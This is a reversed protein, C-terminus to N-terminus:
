RLLKLSIMVEDSSSGGEEFAVAYGVSFVSELNSFMVLSFDVQGGVNYFTTRLDDSGVNTVLGGTFLALRSWNTYLGPVGVKRFRVPPLTWELTAKGFDNGGAENLELGPFSYYERYRRVEQYDIWNNGFGGFFFNAFANDRDGWSKGAATRIWLSAHDLPLPFGYDYSGYLRPFFDEDVLSGSAALSWAKGSEHDVAGITRRMDMYDLHGGIVAYEDFPARINQFDPLTDLGGYYGASITYDLTTPREFILYDHFSVVASHGKRSTKTPGFMDYFNTANYKLRVNWPAHSYGLNLHLREDSDLDEDPSWAATLDIAHLGLPDSMNMRVGAAISDKYGELVPYVSGVRMQSFPKYPGDYESIKDLDVRAPSGANWERVMPHTKVVEQGLYRVANIDELVEVPMRVPQFGQSSYRFAIMREDSVPLPRFVGTEVNTLAEMERTQRDFRFVNSVGTHYSTGYLYRGDPSFVFNAPTNNPFEHLMDLKSDGALVAPISLSALQQRGTVDILSCSLTQGDPSIDLDFMDRGYDLTLVVQWEKYPPSLKVLSSLGNHHQVGWLTQDSPNIVLDGTRFNELIQRQRGTALDVENLDRWGRTNDSTYYLKRNKADFALSTVFYLAPAGVKSLPTIAGTDANIAVIQAPKAPRNIAVYILNRESDYFGRSISGLSEATVAAQETVPFERIRELNGKQWEGEWAIWKRWEDDLPSGYVQEFQSAFYRKSGDNRDFWRILKEPGYQLGLWTVFRTGYLYSNQGVQFDITTGESELGVVDYFYADELVMTRFAMEDYGGLVRGVGGAMWTELFVAIGEHYWRPSYWRPSTLYSYFMSIPNESIPSVKGNFMKRFFLDSGSGKDTAVVHVLEHHMLWNMRENAPMTDYVYDFPSIGISIYNWPITSTGGHGYDGFDQMLVTVPETPTYDFLNRHFALSNEFSRALHYSLYRHAEDYSILNLHETRRSTLEQALAPRTAALLM